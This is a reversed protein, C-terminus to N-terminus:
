SLHGLNVTKQHTWANDPAVLFDSHSHSEALLCNADSRLRAHFWYPTPQLTPELYKLHRRLSVWSNLGPNRLSSLICRQWTGPCAKLSTKKGRLCFFFHLQSWRPSPGRSVGTFSHMTKVPTPLSTWEPRCWERGTSDQALRSLPSMLPLTGESSETGQKHTDHKHSSTQPLKALERQQLSRSSCAGAARVEGGHPSLKSSHESLNSSHVWVFGKGRVNSKGLYKIM